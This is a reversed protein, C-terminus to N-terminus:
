EAVEEGDLDLVEDNSFLDVLEEEPEPLDNYKNYADAIMNYNKIVIFSSIPIGAGLAIIGLTSFLGVILGGEPIILEYREANVKLREALKIKWIIGYIGFTIVSLFFAFGYKMTRKGDGECLTNINRGLKHWFFIAYIGLTICSLLFFKFISKKPIRADM